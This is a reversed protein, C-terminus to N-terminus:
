RYVPTQVVQYAVYDSPYYDYYYSSRYYPDQSGFLLTVIEVGRDAWNAEYYYNDGYIQENGTLLVRAGSWNIDDRYFVITAIEQIDSGFRCFLSLGREYDDREVYEDVSIYDAYG